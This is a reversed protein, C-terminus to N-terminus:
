INEGKKMACSLSYFKLMFGLIYKVDYLTGM